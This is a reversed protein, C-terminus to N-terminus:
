LLGAHRLAALFRPPDAITLGDIQRLDLLDKDWSVLWDAEAFVAHAILFYDDRDRGISQYPEVLREVSEGVSRLEDVLAVVNTQTIRAALDPRQNLKRDLEEAVGEVFLLRFTGAFAARLIAGAASDEPSTSRLYSILVNTDLVIRIPRTSRHIL